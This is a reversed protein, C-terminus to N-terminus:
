KMECSLTVVITTKSLSTKAIKNLIDAYIYMNGNLIITNSPAMQSWLKIVHQVYTFHMENGIM